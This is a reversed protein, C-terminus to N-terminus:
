PPIKGLMHQQWTKRLSLVGFSPAYSVSQDPSLTTYSMISPLHMPVGNETAIGVTANYKHAKEKAEAGQSLIGKPFYLNKGKSSLMDYINPNVEQIIENLEKAIPNM